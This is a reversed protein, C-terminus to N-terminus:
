VKEPKPALAKGGALRVLPSTIVVTQISAPGFRSVSVAQLGMISAILAVASASPLPAIAALLLLWAGLLLPLYIRRFARNIFAGLLAGAAFACLTAIFKVAEGIEGRVAAIALLVTNGTMNAAFVHGLSMYGYADVSGAILCLLGVRGLSRLRNKRANM